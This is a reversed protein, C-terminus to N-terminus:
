LREYGSWRELQVYPVLKDCTAKFFPSKCIRPAIPRKESFVAQRRGTSM